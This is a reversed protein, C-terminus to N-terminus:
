KRTDKVKLIQDIQKRTSADMAGVKLLDDSLDRIMKTAKSM